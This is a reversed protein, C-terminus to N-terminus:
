ENQQTKLYQTPSDARARRAAGRSPLVQNIKHNSYAGRRCHLYKGVDARPCNALASCQLRDWRSLPMYGCTEVQPTEHTAVYARVPRRRNTFAGATAGNPAQISKHGTEKPQFGLSYAGIGEPDLWSRQLACQPVATGLVNHIRQRWSNQLPTSLGNIRVTNCTNRNSNKENRGLPGRYPGCSLM